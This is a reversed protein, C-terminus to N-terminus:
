VGNSDANTDAPESAPPLLERYRAAQDPKDWSEYLGVIRQLAQRKRDEPAEAHNKMGAYGDLLLPEAEDFKEQSTLADGLASQTNFILWHNEPLVEERIGLCERLPPEAAAHEGQEILDLGRRILSEARDAPPLKARWEAAQDPKGWADYLYVLSESARRTQEHDQGLTARMGDYAALLRSEADEYQKLEVLCLAWSGALAMTLPHGPPLAREAIEVAQRCLLEAEVYREQLLYLGALNRMFDLTSPHEDSLARRALELGKTFLSEAKDLRDQERYLHALNNMFALTQQHEEGRAQLSLEIGRELLPKAKDYRDQAMYACALNGMVTLTKEGQEGRLRRYQEFARVLLAEADDYRGYDHYLEALLTMTQLTDPHEDGLVRRRLGVARVYLKEAEETRHQRRCLEALNDMSTLTRPDEEGFDRLAIELVRVHLREADDYRGQFLYLHALNNICSLTTEHDEGFARRALELAEEFLLEADDYERPNAHLIGLNSLALVTQLHEDGLVRRSLELARETLRLAEDPQDQRVCLYGLQIMSQVTHESEEGLEARRLRLARRLHPEAQEYAGLQTYTDGLTTRISAEVLPGDQFKGEINKSATDLVQRMTVERGQAGPAVTALLDNNLFENIAKAIKAEREAEARQQREDARARAEGIAYTTSVAAAAVLVILIATVSGVLIRNRRAFKRLQYFTSPPRALIPEDNLHRKIDDALEAASRYRRNREKALAKLVITETDGRLRREITSPRTPSEERIIRVAEPISAGSIDYPLRECILEYLVVGLAYVDSRSDLDHPDAACQEPSMYQLTGILQGVDTQLTTVAMDSDTARAVGFDIIKPERTSDVLINAPKLDRHIVGKQHGHYVADCVKVFLELRERHDPKEQEAYETLTRANPIYEMAFYPVTHTGEDHMGAEYVQAINPHRLRALIQSEHEFRRLASRSAIGGRLVKLAVTRHPHEQVAEYVVGMGGTAIVRRISYHGVSKPRELPSAAAVETETEDQLGERLDIGPWSELRLPHADAVLMAEVELRMEPDDACAQDLISRRAEPPQERLRTFLDYVQEYRKPNM